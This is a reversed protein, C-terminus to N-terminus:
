IKNIINKVNFDSYGAEDLVRSSESFDFDDISIIENNEKGHVYISPSFCILLVLIIILKKM